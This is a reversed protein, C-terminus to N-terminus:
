SELYTLPLFRGFEDKGSTGLSYANYGWSAEDWTLSPPLSSLMYLRLVAGILLIIVLPIIKKVKEVIISNYMFAAKKITKNALFYRGTIRIRERDKNNLIVFKSRISNLASSPILRNREELGIKPCPNAGPPVTDLRPM